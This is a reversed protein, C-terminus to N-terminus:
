QPVETLGYKEAQSVGHKFWDHADYQFGWERGFVEFMRDRAESGGVGEIVYFKGAFVPDGLQFTFYWTQPEEYPLRELLYAADRERVIARIGEVAPYGHEDRHENAADPM